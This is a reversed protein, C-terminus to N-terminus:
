LRDGSLRRIGGVGPPRKLACRDEKGGGEAGEDSGAKQEGAESGLAPMPKGQLAHLLNDHSPYRSLALNFLNSLGDM